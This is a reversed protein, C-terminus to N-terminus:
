YVDPLPLEVVMNFSDEILSHLLEENEIRLTQIKMRIFKMDRVHLTEERLGEKKV